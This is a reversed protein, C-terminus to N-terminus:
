ALAVTVAVKETFRPLSRKLDRQYEELSYDPSEMGSMGFTVEITGTAHKAWLDYAECLENDTRMWMDVREGRALRRHPRPRSYVIFEKLHPSRITRLLPAISEHYPHCISVEQLHTCESLSVPNAPHHPILM